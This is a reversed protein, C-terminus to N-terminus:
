RELCICCITLESPQAFLASTDNTECGGITISHQTSPKGLIEEDAVMDDDDEEKEEGESVDKAEEM